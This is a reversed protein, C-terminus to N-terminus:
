TVLVYSGEIKTAMPLTKNFNLRFFSSLAHLKRYTCKSKRNKRSFEVNKSFFFWSLTYNVTRASLSPSNKDGHATNRADRSRLVDCIHPRACLMKRKKEIKRRWFRGFKPFFHEFAHTKVNRACIKTLFGNTKQTKQCRLMFFDCSLTYNVTRASLSSKKKRITSANKRKKSTLIRRLTYIVTNQLGRLRLSDHKITNKTGGSPRFTEFVARRSWFRPNQGAPRRPPKKSPHQQFTTPRSAAAPPTARM